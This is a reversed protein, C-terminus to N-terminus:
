TCSSVQKFGDAFNAKWHRVGCNVLDRLQGTVSQKGFLTLETRVAPTGSYQVSLVDGHEVWITRFLQDFDNQDEVREGDM